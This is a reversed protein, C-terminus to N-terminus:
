SAASGASTGDFFQARSKMSSASIRKSSCDNINAVMKLSGMGASKLAM